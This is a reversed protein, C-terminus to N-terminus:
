MHWLHVGCGLVRQTGPAAQVNAAKRRMGQKDSEGVMSKEIQPTLVLYLSCSEHLLTFESRPWQRCTGRPNPLNQLLVRFRIGWLGSCSRRLGCWGCLGLERQPHFRRPHHTGSRTYTSVMIFIRGRKHAPTPAVNVVGVRLSMQFRTLIM